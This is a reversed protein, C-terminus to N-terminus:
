NKNSRVNINAKMKIFIQFFSAMETAEDDTEDKLGIVLMRLMPRHKDSSLSKYADFISIFRNIDFYSNTIQTQTESNQQHYVLGNEKHKDLEM